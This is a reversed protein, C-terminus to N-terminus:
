EVWPIKASVLRHRDDNKVTGSADQVLIHLEGDSYALHLGKPCNRCWRKFTSTWFKVAPPPDAKNFPLATKSGSILDRGRHTLRFGSVDQLKPVGDIPEGKRDLVQVFARHRLVKWINEGTVELKGDAVLQLLDTSIPRM